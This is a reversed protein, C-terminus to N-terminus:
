EDQKGGQTQNMDEVIDYAQYYEMRKQNVKTKIQNVLFFYCILSCIIAMGFGAILWVVVAVIVSNRGALEKAENTAENISRELDSRKMQEKM